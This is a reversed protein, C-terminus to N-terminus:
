PEQFSAPRSGNRAVKEMMETVLRHKETNDDPSIMALETRLYEMIASARDDNQGSGGFVSIKHHLTNVTKEFAAYIVKVGLGCLFAVANPTLDVSDALTDPGFFVNVILVGFIAGLFIRAGYGQLKRSDFTHSAAKDTLTKMLYVCAGLGGWFFPSFYTLVYRHLNFIFLSFSDSRDANEKLWLTLTETSTALLMFFVGWFIIWGIHWAVTRANRLTRGNVKDVFTIATLKSYYTLIDGSATVKQAKDRAMSYEVVAQHLRSIITGNPDLGRESAYHILANVEEITIAKDTNMLEDLNRNRISEIIRTFLNKPQDCELVEFSQQAENIDNNIENHPVNVLM